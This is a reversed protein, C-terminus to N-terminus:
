GALLTAIAWMSALAGIVIFVVSRGLPARHLDGESPADPPRVLAFGTGVVMAAGIALVLLPLLNEGLFVADFTPSCAAFRRGPTSAPHSLAVM